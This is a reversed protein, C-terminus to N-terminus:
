GHFGEMLAHLNALLADVVHFFLSLLPVFSDLVENVTRFVHQFRPDVLNSLEVVGDLRHSFVEFLHLHSVVVEHFLDHNFNRLGVGLYVLSIDIELVEHLPGVVEKLSGVVLVILLLLRDLLQALRNVHKLDFDVAAKLFRVEFDRSPDASIIHPLIELLHIVKHDNFHSLNFVRLLSAPVQYSVLFEIV